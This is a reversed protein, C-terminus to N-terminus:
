TALIQSTVTVILAVALGPGFPVKQDRLAQSPRAPLFKCIRFSIITLLTGLSAVALLMPVHWIGIWIGAAVMFKVDGLGVAEIGRLQLYAIRLVVLIIAGFFAGTAAEVWTVQTWSITWHFGLGALGLSLNLSDPLVQRRLDSIVLLILAALGVLLFTLEAARMATRKRGGAHPLGEHYSSAM